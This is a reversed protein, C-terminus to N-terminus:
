STPTTETQATETQATEASEHKIRHFIEERQVSVSKPASVGLRVQNGKVRLVTVSIEDGIMVAEGIRRTLILM